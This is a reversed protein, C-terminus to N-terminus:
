GLRRGIDLLSEDRHGSLDLVTHTGKLLRTGVWAGYANTRRLWYFVSLTSTATLHVQRIRTKQRNVNNGIVPIHGSLKDSSTQKSKTGQCKFIFM